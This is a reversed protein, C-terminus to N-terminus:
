KRHLLAELRARMEEKRQQTKAHDIQYSGDPLAILWDGEKTGEPLATCPLDIARQDPALLVAYAGEFRDVSFYGANDCFNIKEARDAM